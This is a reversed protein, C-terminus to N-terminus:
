IGIAIGALILAIGAASLGMIYKKEFMNNLLSDLYTNANKLNTVSTQAGTELASFVVKVNDTVQKLNNMSSNINTTFADDVYDRVEIIEGGMSKVKLSMDALANEALIIKLDAAMLKAKADLCLDGVGDVTNGVDRFPQALAYFPHAGAIDIDIGNGIDILWDGADILPDGANQLITEIDATTKRIDNKLILRGSTIDNSLGVCITNAYNMIYRSKSLLGTPGLVSTDIGTKMTLYGQDLATTAKTIAGQPGLLNQTVGDEITKFGADIANTVEKIRGQIKLMAYAIAFLTVGLLVLPFGDM